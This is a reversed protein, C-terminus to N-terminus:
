RKRRGVVAGARRPRRLSRREVPLLHQHQRAWAAADENLADDSAWNHYGIMEFTSYLLDTLEIGPFVHGICCFPPLVNPQLINRPDIWTVVRLPDVRRLHDERLAIGVVFEAEAPGIHGDEHKLVGICKFRALYRSPAGYPEALPQLSLIESQEALDLSKERQRQLFSQWVPDDIM